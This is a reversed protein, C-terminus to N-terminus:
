TDISLPFLYLYFFQLLVFVFSWSNSDAPRIPITRAAWNASTCLLPMVFVPILEALRNGRVESHFFPSVWESVWKRLSAHFGWPTNSSTTKLSAARGYMKQCWIWRLARQFVKNFWVSLCTIWKRRDNALGLRQQTWYSVDTCNQVASVSAASMLWVMLGGASLHCDSDRYHFIEAPSGRSGPILITNACCAMFQLDAVRGM